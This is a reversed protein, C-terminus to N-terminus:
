SLFDGDGEFGEVNKIYVELEAAQEFMSLTDEGFLPDDRVITRPIYYINYGYQKISEIVLSELLHQERGYTFNNFYSNLM